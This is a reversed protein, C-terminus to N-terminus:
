KGPAPTNVNVTTAADNTTIDQGGGDDGDAILMGIIEILAPLTITIIILIKNLYADSGTWLGKITLVTSPVVGINIVKKLKRYWLPAIKNVNRISVTAM